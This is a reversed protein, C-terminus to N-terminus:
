VGVEVGSTLLPLPVLNVSMSSDRRFANSQRKRAHRLSTKPLLSLPTSPLPRPLYGGVGRSHTPDKYPISPVTERPKSGGTGRCTRLSVTYRTGIGGTFNWRCGGLVDIKGLRSASCRKCIEPAFRQSRPIEDGAALTPNLGAPATSHLGDTGYDTGM